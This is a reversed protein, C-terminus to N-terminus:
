FLRRRLAECMEIQGVLGGYAATLQEPTELSADVLTLEKSDEAGEQWWQLVDLLFQREEETELALVYKAL